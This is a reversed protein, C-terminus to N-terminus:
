VLEKFLLNTNCSVAYLVKGNVLGKITFRYKQYTALTAELFIFTSDHEIRELETKSNGWTLEYIDEFAYVVYVKGKVLEKITFYNNRM